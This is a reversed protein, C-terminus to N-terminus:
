ILIYYLLYLWHSLPSLVFGNTKNSIYLVHTHTYFTRTPQTHKNVMKEKKSNENRSRQWLPTILRFDGVLRASERKWVCVRVFVCLCTLGWLQYFNERRAEHEAQIVLIVPNLLHHSKHATESEQTARKPDQELRLSPLFSLLSFFLFFFIITTKLRNGANTTLYLGAHRSLLVSSDKIWAYLLASYLSQIITVNVIYPSM